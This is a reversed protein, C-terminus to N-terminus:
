VPNFAPLPEGPTWEIESVQDTGTHLKEQMKGPHYITPMGGLFSAWMSFTSHGTAILLKARSMLLMDGIASGISATVVTAKDALAATEEPSADSFINIPLDRWTPDSRTAEIADLFWSDPTYRPDLMLKEKPHGQNTLDGRRLHLAIFDREGEEGVRRLIAPNVIELLKREVLQRCGQIDAFYNRLGEFVFIRNRRRTQPPVSPPMQGEAIRSGTALLAARRFGTVYGENTFEGFYFRKRSENRILAGFRPQVWFPAIM